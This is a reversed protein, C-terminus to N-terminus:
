LLEHYIQILGIKTWIYIFLMFPAFAVISVSLLVKSSWRVQIKVIKFFALVHLLIATPILTRIVKVALARM